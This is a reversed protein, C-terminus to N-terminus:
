MTELREPSWLPLTSLTEERPTRSILIISALPMVGVAGQVACSTASLASTIKKGSSLSRWNAQLEPSRAAAVAARLLRAQHAPLEAQARRIQTLRSGLEIQSMDRAARDYRAAEAVFIPHVFDGWRFRFNPLPEGLPTFHHLGLLRLPGVSWGTEEAVERRVAAEVTEGPELGGGPEIHHLGDDQRVVVVRSDKFVVARASLALATPCAIDGIYTRVRLRLAPWQVELDQMPELRALRAAFAPDFTDLTTM